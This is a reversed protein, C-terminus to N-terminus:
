ARASRHPQRDAGPPNVLFLLVFVGLGGGATVTQKLLKIEIHLFGLLGGAVLGGGLAMFARNTVYLMDKQVPVLISLSLSLLMM